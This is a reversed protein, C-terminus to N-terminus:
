NGRVAKRALRRFGWAVAFLAIWMDLLYDWLNPSNGLGLAWAWLAATLTAATALWARKWAAVAAAACPGALALGDYGLGYPDWPGLGLAAPYLLLGLVAAGSLMAARDAAPLTTPLGWRAAAGAGVLVLSPVSLTGTYPILLGTLDLEGFPLYATAAAIALAV